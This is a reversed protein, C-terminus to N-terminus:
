GGVVDVCFVGSGHLSFVRCASCPVKARLGWGMQFERFPETKAYKRNQLARNTCGAGVACICRDGTERESGGGRIKTDCCEIRLIRNFCNEGCDVTCECAVEPVFTQLPKGTHPRECYFLAHTGFYNEYIRVPVASSRLCALCAGEPYSDYDNRAIKVFTQPVDEAADKVHM